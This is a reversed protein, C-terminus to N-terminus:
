LNDLRKELEEIKKDLISITKNYHSETVDNTGPIIPMKCHPTFDRTITAERNFASNGRHPHKTELSWKEFSLKGGQINQEFPSELTVISHPGEMYVDLITKNIIKIDGSEVFSIEIQAGSGYGGKMRSIEKETSQLLYRGRDELSVKRVDGDSGIEEVKFIAKFTKGEFSDKVSNENEIELLDGVAYGSGAEKLFFEDVFYEKISIKIEDGPNLFASTDEPISIVSNGKNEFKKIFFHKETDLITYLTSIGQVKLFSNARILSWDASTGAYIINSGKTLNVTSFQENM